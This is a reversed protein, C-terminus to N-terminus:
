AKVMREGTRRETATTSPTSPAIAHEEHVVTVGGVVPTMVTTAASAWHPDIATAIPPFATRTVFMM